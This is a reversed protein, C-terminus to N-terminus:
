WQYDLGFSNKLENLKCGSFLKKKKFCIRNFIINCKENKIQFTVITSKLFLSPPLYINNPSWGMHEKGHLNVSLSFYIVRGM